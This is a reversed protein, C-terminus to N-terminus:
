EPAKCMKKHQPWDKKQCASSCYTAVRCKTCRFLKMGSTGCSACKSTKQNTKTERKEFGDQLVAKVKQVETDEPFSDGIVMLGIAYYTAASNPEKWNEKGYYRMVEAAKIMWAKVNNQYKDYSAKQTQSVVDRKMLNRLLVIATGMHEPTFHNIRKFKRHQTECNMANFIKDIFTVTKAKVQKKFMKDHEIPKHNIELMTFLQDVLWGNVALKDAIQDVFSLQMLSSLLGLEVFGMDNMAEVYTEESPMSDPYYKGVKKFSEL